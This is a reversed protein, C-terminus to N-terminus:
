RGGDLLEGPEPATPPIPAAAPENPMVFFPDAYINRWSNGAPWDMGNAQYWIANLRHQVMEDRLERRKELQEKLKALREEMKKVPAELGELYADYQKGLEVEIEQKLDEKESEDKSQRIEGTLERIRLNSEAMKKNAASIPFGAVAARGFPNGNEAAVGILGPGQVSWTTRNPRLGPLTQAGAPFSARPANSQRKLAQYANNLDRLERQLDELRQDDRSEEQPAALALNAGTLMLLVALGISTLRPLQNNM